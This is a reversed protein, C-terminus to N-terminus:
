VLICKSMWICFTIIKKKSTKKTVNIDIKESQNSNYGNRM